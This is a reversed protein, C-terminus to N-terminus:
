SIKLNTLEIKTKNYRFDMSSFKLNVLKFDIAERMCEIEQWYNGEEEIWDLIIPLPANGGILHTTGYDHTTLSLIKSLERKLSDYFLNTRRDQNGNVKIQVYEKDFIKTFLFAEIDFRADQNWGSKLYRQVEALNKNRDYNIEVKIKSIM